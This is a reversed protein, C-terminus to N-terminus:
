FDHTTVNGIVKLSGLRGLYENKYFKLSRDKKGLENKGVDAVNRGIKVFNPVITCM